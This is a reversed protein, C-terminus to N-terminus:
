NIENEILTLNYIQLIQSVIAERERKRSKYIKM